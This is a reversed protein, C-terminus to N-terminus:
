FAAESNTALKWAMKRVFIPVKSSFRVALVDLRVEDEMDKTQSRDRFYAEQKALLGLIQKRMKWATKYTVGTLRQITQTAVTRDLYLFQLVLFWKMLPLHSHHFITQNIATFQHRCKKCFFLPRKKDSSLPLNIIIRNRCFPCSIGFPWRVKELIFHCERESIHEEILHTINSSLRRNQLSNHRAPSMSKAIRWILINTFYPTCLLVRLLISCYNSRKRREEVNSISKNQAGRHM